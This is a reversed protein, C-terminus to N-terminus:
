WILCMLLAIFFKVGFATYPSKKSVQVKPIFILACLCIIVGKYTSFASKLTFATIGFILFICFFFWSVFVYGPSNMYEPAPEKTTAQKQPAEVYIVQPQQTAEKPAGCSSCFKENEKIFGGCATCYKGAPKAATLRSGCHPCFPVSASIEEDCFKCRTTNENM